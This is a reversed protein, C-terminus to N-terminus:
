DFLEAEVLECITHWALLHLEQVRPTAHHPAAYCIHAADAVQFGKEGTFAITIAGLQRAAQLGRTINPSRGSTSIGVAVDGPRALARVQRAFVESYDWVNAIATLASINTNLALAPLPDRERLFRGMLEAAVHQADAASGGNGFLLILRGTRLAQIFAQAVLVLAHPSSELMRRHAELSECLLATARQELAGARAQQQNLTLVLNVAEHVAGGGGPHTLTRHAAARAAPAANAPALGLGVATLASADGESDGVYCIDELPIGSKAAVHELAILKDKAGCELNKVGFRAALRGVAPTDEGTVLYVPFAARLLNSVADLDHFTIAKIEEGEPTLQTTGDTIVGDIDLALLKIM